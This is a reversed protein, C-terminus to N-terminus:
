MKKNKKKVNYIMREIQLEGYVETEGKYHRASGGGGVGKIWEEGMKNGGGEDMGGGKDVGGRYGGRGKKKGRRKGM